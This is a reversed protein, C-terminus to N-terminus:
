LQWSMVLKATLNEKFHTGGQSKHGKEQNNTAYFDAGEELNNAGLFRREIEKILAGV